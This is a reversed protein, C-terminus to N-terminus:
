FDVREIRKVGLIVEGDVEISKADPAPRKKLEYYDYTGDGFTVKYVAPSCSLMVFPLVCLALFSVMLLLWALLSYIASKITNQM